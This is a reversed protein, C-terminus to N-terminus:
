NHMTFQLNHILRKLKEIVPEWDNFKEQRLITVSPYLDTTDKDIGWRWDPCKPLLLFTKKGMSGALHASATDITIIIDMEAFIRATDTFDSITDSLPVIPYDKLEEEDYGIFPAYFAASGRIAEDEFLTYFKDIPISREFDRKHTKSGQWILGIKLADTNKYIYPNDKKPFDEAKIEIPPVNEYGAINCISLLPTIFDCKKKQLFGAAKDYEIITGRLYPKLLDSM